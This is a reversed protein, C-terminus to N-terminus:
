TNAQSFFKIAQQKDTLSSTCWTIQNTSELKSISQDEEAVGWTLPLPLRTKVRRLLLLLWMPKSGASKGAEEMGRGKYGCCLTRDGEHGMVGDEDGAGLDSGTM